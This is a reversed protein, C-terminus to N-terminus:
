KTAGDWATVLAILRDIAVGLETRFADHDALTSAQALSVAAQHAARKTAARAILRARYVVNAPTWPLDFIRPVEQIYNISEQTVRM